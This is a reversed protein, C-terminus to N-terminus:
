GVASPRGGHLHVPLGRHGNTVFSPLPTLDAPDVALRLRPFAAFLAPLAIRAELRALEAGLCLHAGHGFALHDRATARHIDFSDATPGHVAPHRGVSAYNVVIAEGQRFTLGSPEDTVDTIPFRMLLNAIPAQHRLTEEVAQDWAVTGRLLAALQDPHTLLNTVAHDLLNVTTEHGAAIILLFSDCLEQETLEGSDHAAILECSVDDAPRERKRAILANLLRYVEAYGATAEEETRETIFLAGMADRFGDHLEEPVGILANVVLLPLQWAFRARLDVPAGDGAARLDDLLARTITEIRPALARVRRTSFAGALPRRLRTHEKGQASLANVVEVWIRLPWDAPVRGERYATWHQRADKSIRPDTLLRRVLSPETVSWALVGGPLETRAAPGLARLAAAEAHIDGGSADLVYPCGNSLPHPNM